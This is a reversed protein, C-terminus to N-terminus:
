IYPYHGCKRRTRCLCTIGETSQHRQNAPLFPMQGTFHRSPISAHNKDPALHVQMHSLQHWQWESDRAETFNPKTKSKQYRSVRTTGSFPGSFPRTHTRTNHWNLSSPVLQSIRCNARSKTLHTIPSWSRVIDPMTRTALRHKRLCTVM